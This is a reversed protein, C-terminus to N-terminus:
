EFMAAVAGLVCHTLAIADHLTAHVAAPSLSTDATPV